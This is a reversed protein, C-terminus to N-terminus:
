CEPSRARLDELPIEYLRYNGASYMPTLDIGDVEARLVYRDPTFSGYLVYRPCIPLPDFTTDDYEYRDPMFAAGTIANTVNTGPLVYLHRTQYVAPWEWTLITANEPLHTQIFAMMRFFDDGQTNTLLPGQSVLMVAGGLVTFLGYRIRNSAGPVRQWLWGALRGLLVTSLVLCIFAYRIWGISALVYWAIWVTVLVLLFREVRRRGPNTLGNEPHARYLAVTGGVAVVGLWLRLWVQRDTLNRSLNFPFIHIAIGERLVATNDSLYPGAMLARWGTDLGYVAFMVVLIVAWRQLTEREQGVAYLTRLAVTVLVMVLVQSKIASAAGLCLGVLINNKLDDKLLLLLALLLFLAAPIEGLFQRSQMIFNGTTSGPLLLLIWVSLYASPLGYMRYALAYLAILTLIGLLAVLLRAATISAGVAPYLAALLLILPPGSQIAPDAPRVGDASRLGYVSTEALTRAATLNIGEDFWTAPVQPLRILLFPLVIVLLLM